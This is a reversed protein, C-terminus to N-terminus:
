MVARCKLEPLTIETRNNKNVLYCIGDKVRLEFWIPVNLSNQEFPGPEFPKAVFTSSSNFDGEIEKIPMGNASNSIAFRLTNQSLQDEPILTALSSASQGVSGCSLTLVTLVVSVSYSILWVIRM